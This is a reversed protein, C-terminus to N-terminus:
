MGFFDFFMNAYHFGDTRDLRSVFLVGVEKLEASIASNWNFFGLLNSKIERALNGVLSIYLRKRLKERLLVAKM